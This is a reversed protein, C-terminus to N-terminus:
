IPQDEVSTRGPDIPCRRHLPREWHGNEKSGDSRSSGMCACDYLNGLALARFVDAVAVGETEKANVVKGVKKLWCNQGEQTLELSILPSRRGFVDAM